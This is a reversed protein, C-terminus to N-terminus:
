GAEKLQIDYVNKILGYNTNNGNMGVSIRKLQSKSM